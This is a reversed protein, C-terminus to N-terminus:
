SKNIQDKIENEKIKASKELVNKIVSSQRSRLDAIKKLFMQWLSNLKNITNKNM